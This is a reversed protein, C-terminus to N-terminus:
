LARCVYEIESDVKLELEGQVSSWYLYPDVM